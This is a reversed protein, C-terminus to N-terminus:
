QRNNKMLMLAQELNERADTFDPKLRLAREFFKVAQPLDGQIALASGLSNCAGADDPQAELVQRLHNIAEAIRNLQLLANGLNYRANVYSPDLMLVRRYYSVAEELQGASQLVSGLGNLAMVDDPRSALAQRYSTLAEEVKGETQLVAGLNFHASFDAPYKRLRQRMLAEQLALRGDGSRPLVQLWLHSMEDTSQNGSRVRRPPHNPNRINDVTNDYSYRMSVVSGKPLFVPQRYRFVAQWNPDWNRIHILWIKTGDPLTALAQMEKGLYHAHPYIGLVDADLPLTFEDTVIFNKEGPPIDLAGDHELQLLMPFRTPPQDTFYLGILPQITEPKGSPQLHMNLVLDNGPDLRWAMDDPEVYPLAGPKWFLFHGDPDFFDSEISVDMGGFGAAADLKDLRRASGSRDILINAHHVLKKNGPLIEINKVYCTKTGMFAIVFNRFVDPGSAPVIFQDPIKLVLDPQGLQWGEKVKPSPPLDAPDGEIAGAEVWRGILNIQEDSLRQEDAFEGAGHEPLWPPMYRSRTVASIQRAHKKVDAYTLLSFPASGGPHHCAACNKFILSAIERNFTPTASSKRVINNARAAARLAVSLLLGPILILILLLVRRKM